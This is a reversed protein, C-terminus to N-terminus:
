AAHAGASREYRRTHARAFQVAAMVEQVCTPLAIAAPHQDVALNWAQRAEDWGRDGPTLFITESM